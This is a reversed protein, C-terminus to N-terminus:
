GNWGELMGRPHPTNRTPSAPLAPDARVEIGTARGDPVTFVLAAYPRGGRPSVPGPARHVTVM